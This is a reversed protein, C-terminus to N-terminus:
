RRSGGDLLMTAPGLLRQLATLVESLSGASALRHRGSLVAYDGHRSAGPAFKAITYLPSEHTHRFVSFLAAGDCQDIAYDRWQGCAVRRSYLSLLQYLEPRSFFIRKHKHRFENLRFVTAM